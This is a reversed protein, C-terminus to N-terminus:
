VAIQSPRPAALVGGSLPRPAGTTSPFTLPLGKRSRVALFAFAQAELADVSWGVSEATEMSAPALRERLM